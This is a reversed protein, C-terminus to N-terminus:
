VTATVLGLAELFKNKIEEPMNEDELLQRIKQAAELLEEISDSKNNKTQQVEKIEENSYTETKTSSSPKNIVMEIISANKRVVVQHDVQTPNTEEEELKLKERMETMLPEVIKELQNKLYTTPSVNGKQFNMRIEEDLDSKCNIEIRFRNKSNHKEGFVNKWSLAQGVLRGERYFYIGQNSQNLPLSVRKGNVIRGRSTKDPKPLIAASVEIFTTKKQGNPLHYEVPFTEREAVIYTDEDERMLPDIPAVVEGKKSGESVTFTIGKKIFNKYTLGIYTQM